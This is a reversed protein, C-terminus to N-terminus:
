DGIVAANAINSNFETGELPIYVAVGSKRVVTGKVEELAKKVEAIEGTLDTVSKRIDGVASEVAAKVIPELDLKAKEIIPDDEKPEVTPKVAAKVVEALDGVAKTITGLTNEIAVLRGDTGEESKTIPSDLADGTPTQDEIPEPVMIEGQLGDNAHTSKYILALNETFGELDDEPLNAKAIEIYTDQNIANDGVLSISWLDLSKTVCPSMRQSPSLHCPGEAKKRRGYISFKNLKGKLIDEWVDDTDESCFIEAEIHTEGTAKVVASSAIGVPRETHHVHLIPHKMFNSLAERFAGTTIIENERDPSPTSVTGRIKRGKGIPEFDIQYHFPVSKIITQPVNPNEQL